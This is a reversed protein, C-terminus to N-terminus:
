LDIWFVDGPVEDRQGEIGVEAAVGVLDREAFLGAGPSVVQDGAGSIAGAEPVAFPVAAM